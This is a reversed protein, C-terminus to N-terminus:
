YYQPSIKVQVLRDRVSEATSFYAQEPEFKFPSFHPSYMAHFSINSAIETPEEALPYSVPPVEASIGSKTAGNVKTTAAM